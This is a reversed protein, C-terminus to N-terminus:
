NDQPQQTLFATLTKTLVEPDVPKAIHANMGSDLAAKVDESFANATMAIIPVTAADPRDLARITRTAEYGNMNPMMVDMLICQYTGIASSKFKDVALLGDDAQDVTIDLSELMVRAIEMNIENDEALLIRVGAFSIQAAGSDAPNETEKANIDRDIEFPLEVVVSTGNGLKSRIDIHGGLMDVFQRVISMGLGSGRFQTRASYADAQTFAEYIHKQFDRSMGIGTDSVEFRALLRRGEPDPRCDARFTITGGDPTFKVANSIINILVQRVHLADTLVFPNAIPAVEAVVELDRSSVSSNLIDVCQGIM